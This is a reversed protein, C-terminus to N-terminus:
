HRKNLAKLVQLVWERVSEVARNEEILKGQDGNSLVYKSLVARPSPFIFNWVSVICCARPSSLILGSGADLWPPSPLVRKDRKVGVISRSEVTIGYPCM